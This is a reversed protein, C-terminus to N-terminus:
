YVVKGRREGFFVDVFYYVFNWVICIFNLFWTVRLQAAKRTKIMKSVALAVAAVKGEVFAAM